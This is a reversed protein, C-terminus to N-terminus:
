SFVVKESLGEKIVWDLSIEGIGMWKVKECM